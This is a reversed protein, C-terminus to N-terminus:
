GRKQLKSSEQLVREVAALGEDLEETTVCLPPTFRLVDGGALSLLV